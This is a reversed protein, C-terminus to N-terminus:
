SAKSWDRLESFQMRNMLTIAEPLSCGGLKQLLSKKRHEIARVTVKQEYSVQTNTLGTMIMGLVQQENESLTAYRERIVRIEDRESSSMFSRLVADRLIGNLKLSTLEEKLFVDTAGVAMVRVGLKLSDENTIVLIPIGLAVASLQKITEFADIDDLDADLVFCGAKLRSGAELLRETSDVPYDSFGTGEVAFAIQGSTKVDLYNVVTPKAFEQSM